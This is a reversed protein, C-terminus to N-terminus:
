PCVDGFASSHILNSFHVHAKITSKCLMHYFPDIPSPSVLSLLIQFNFFGFYKKSNVNDSGTWGIMPQFSVVLLPRKALGRGEDGHILFPITRMPNPPMDGGSKSHKEWFDSLMSEIADLNNLKLGGLFFFGKYPNKFATELWDSLHLAPWPREQVRRRRSVRPVSTIKVGLTQNKRHILGHLNRSANSLNKSSRAYSAM